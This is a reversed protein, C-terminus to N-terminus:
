KLLIRARLKIRFPADAKICLLRQNSGVKKRFAGVPSHAIESDSIPKHRLKVMHKLRLRVQPLDLHDRTRSPSPMERRVVHRPNGLLRPGRAGDHRFDRAPVTQHGLLQPPPLRSLRHHAIRRGRRRHENGGDDACRGRWRLVSAAPAPSWRPRAIWGPRWVGCSGPIM